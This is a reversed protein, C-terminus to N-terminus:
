IVMPVDDSEYIWGDSGPLFIRLEASMSAVGRYGADGELAYDRVTNWSCGANLLLEALRLTGPSSACIWVTDRGRWEEDAPGVCDDVNSLALLPLDHTCCGYMWPHKSTETPFYSLAFPVMSLGVPLDALTLGGAPIVISRIDSEPHSITLTVTEAPGHFACALLL